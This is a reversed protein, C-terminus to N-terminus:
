DRTNFGPQKQVTLRRSLCKVLFNVGGMLGRRQLDKVSLVTPDYPQVVFQCRSGVYDAVVAHVKATCRSVHAPTAFDGHLPLLVLVPNNDAVSDAAFPELHLDRSLKPRPHYLEFLHGFLASLSKAGQEAAGDPLVIVCAQSAARLIRLREQQDPAEYATNFLFSPAAMHVVRLRSDGVVRLTDRKAGWPKREVRVHGVVSSDATSFGKVSHNDFAYINEIAVLEDGPLICEPEALSRASSSPLLRAIHSHVAESMALDSGYVLLLNSKRRRSSAFPKAVLSALTPLGSSSLTSVISDLFAGAHSSSSSCYQQYGVFLRLRSCHTSCWLVRLSNFRPLGAASAIQQDEEENYESKMGAWDSKITRMEWFLDQSYVRKWSSSVVRLFSMDMASCNLFEGITVLLSDPLLAIPGNVILTFAKAKQNSLAFIDDLISGETDRGKLGLTPHLLGGVRADCKLYRPTTTTLSVSGREINYLRVTEKMLWAWPLSVDCSRLELSVKVGKVDVVVVKREDDM